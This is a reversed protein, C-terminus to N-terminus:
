KLVEAESVVMLKRFQGPVLNTAKKLHRTFHSQDCFGCQLAISALDLRTTALLRKAEALRIELLLQHFTKGTDRRVRKVISSASAGVARSAVTMTVPRSYNRELWRVVRESLAPAVGDADSARLSAESLIELFAYCVDEVTRGQDLRAAFRLEDRAAAHWDGGRLVADRTLLAMPVRLHAKLRALDWACAQLVAALYAACSRRLQGGDSGCARSALADARRVLAAPTLHAPRLLRACEAIARQQLYVANRRLFYAASNLGSAFGADKLYEGLGRLRTPSIPPAAAFLNGLRGGARRSRMGRLVFDGGPFDDAADSAARFGSVAACGLCRAFPAVAVAAFLLGAWCTYYFPEASSLANAAAEEYTARCRPELRPDGLCRRCFPPVEGATRVRLAGRDYFLVGHGTHRAADAILAGIADDHREREM